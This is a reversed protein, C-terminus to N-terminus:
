LKKDLIEILTQIYPEYNKWRQVSTKYIPQRVQWHSATKVSRELKHPALCADNWELGVHAILKRTWYEPDAITDAYNIDMIRGPLVQHWHQMLREYDNYYTGLNKLDFAYTHKENFNQFFISLCTDIPDRKTHIIKANPYLFAILGIHIFNQPMKDTFHKPMSSAGSIKALTSEYEKAIEIAHAQHIDNLCVPYDHKSKTRHSLRNATDSWFHVEGAALVDPHSSIIQETLTTASRPMGVIVIPVDSNVCKDKHQKFFDANFFEILQNFRERNENIDYNINKNKLANAIAYHNFAHEYSNQDDYIKGLAFHIDIQQGDSLEQNDALKLLHKALGDEPKSKKIKTKLVYGTPQNDDIAIIQDCIRIADELKGTDQYVQELGVLSPIHKPDLLLAENFKKLAKNTDAMGLYTNGIDALIDLNEPALRQAHYFCELAENYFRSETLLDGYALFADLYDPFKNCTSHYQIDAEHRLDASELAKALCFNYENNNPALNVAKSLYEIAHPYDGLLAYTVGLGHLVKPNYNDISYAKNLAEFALDYAKLKRQLVSYQVYSDIFTPNLKIATQYHAIAEDYNNLEYLNNALNHHVNANGPESQLIKKLQVVAKAHQKSFTYVFALANQAEHISADIKLIELYCKEAVNLAGNQIAKQGQQFQASIFEIQKQTYKKM